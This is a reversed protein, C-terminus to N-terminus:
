VDLKKLLGMVEIRMPTTDTDGSAKIILRADLGKDVRVVEFHIRIILTGRIESLGDLM